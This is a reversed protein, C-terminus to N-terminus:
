TEVTSKRVPTKGNTTPRRVQRRGAGDGAATPHPVPSPVVANRGSPEPPVATGNGPEMKEGTQGNGFREALQRDCEDLTQEWLDFADRGFQRQLDVGFNRLAGGICNWHDLVFRRAVLEGQREKLDLEAMAARAARYRELAPSDGGTSLLPDREDDSKSYRLEAWGQLTDVVWAPWPAHKPVPCAADDLRFRLTTRGWGLRRALEYQSRITGNESM